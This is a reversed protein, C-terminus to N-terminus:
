QAFRCDSGSFQPEHPVRQADCYQLPPTHTKGHPDGALRSEHGNRSSALTRRSTNRVTPSTHKASVTQRSCGGRAARGSSSWRWRSNVRPITSDPATNYASGSRCCPLSRTCVPFRAHATRLHSSGDWARCTSDPLAYQCTRYECSGHRSRPTTTGGPLSISCRSGVSTRERLASIGAAGRGVVRCRALAAAAVVEASFSSVQQMPLRQQPGFSSQVGCPQLGAWGADGATNMRARSVHHGGDDEAGLGYYGAQTEVATQSFRATGGDGGPSRHGVEEVIERARQRPRHRPSASKAHESPRDHPDPCSAGRRRRPCCGAEVGTLLVAPEEALARVAIEEVLDTADRFVVVGALALRRRVAICPALRFAVVLAAILATLLALVARRFRPAQAAPFAFVRADDEASGTSCLLAGAALTAWARRGAARVVLPRRAAAGLLRARVPRATARATLLLAALAAAVLVLLAAIPLAAARLLGAAVPLAASLLLRAAVAVGAVLVLLAAGLAATWPGSRSRTRHQSCHSVHQPSSQQPLSSAQM